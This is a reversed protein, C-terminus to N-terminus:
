DPLLIVRAEAMTVVAADQPRPVAIDLTNEIARHTVDEIRYLGLGEVYVRRGLMDAHDRSIAATWGIIPQVGLATTTNAPVYGTVRMARVVSGDSPQMHNVEITYAV